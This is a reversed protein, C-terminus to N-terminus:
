RELGFVASIAPSSEQINMSYGLPDQQKFIGEGYRQRMANNLRAKAADAYTEVKKL